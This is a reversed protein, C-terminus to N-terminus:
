AALSWPVDLYGLTCPHWPLGITRISDKDFSNSGRYRVTYAVMAVSTNKDYQSFKIDYVVILIDHYLDTTGHAEAPTHTQVSLATKHIGSPPPARAFVYFQRICLVASYMFSGSPYLGWVGVSAWPVVIVHIMCGLPM